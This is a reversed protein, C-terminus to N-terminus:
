PNKPSALLVGGLALLFWDHSIVRGLATGLHWSLDAPTIM